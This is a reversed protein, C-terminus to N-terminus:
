PDPCSDRRRAPSPRAGAPWAVSLHSSPPRRTPTYLWASMVSRRHGKSEAQAPDVELPHPPGARRGAPARRRVKIRVSAGELFDLEGHALPERFAQNLAVSLMPKQVDYPVFRGPLGAIKKAVPRIFDPIPFM